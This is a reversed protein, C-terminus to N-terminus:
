LIGHNLTNWRWVLSILIILGSNWNKINYIKTVLSNLKSSNLLFQIAKGLLNEHFYDYNLVCLIWVKSKRYNFADSIYEKLRLM